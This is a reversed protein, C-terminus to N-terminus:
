KLINPYFLSSFMLLSDENSKLLLGLFEYAFPGIPGDLPIYQARRRFKTFSSRVLRISGLQGSRRPQDSFNGTVTTNSHIM